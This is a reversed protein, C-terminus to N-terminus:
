SAKMCAKWVKCTDCAKLKDNDKGFDGGHPCENPADEKKSIPTEEEEIKNRNPMKPPPAEEVPEEEESMAGSFLNEVEEYSPITLCSAFCISDEVDKDTVENKRDVFTIGEYGTFEMKGSKVHTAMFKVTKGKETDAALFIVGDEAQTAQAAKFAKGFLHNSVDFVHRKGDMTRVNYIARLSPWCARAEKTMDSEYFKNGAECIPCDLGYMRKRCLIQKNNAGINKHVWYELSYDPSGVELYQSRVLPHNESGIIYPIIDFKNIEGEVPKFFSVDKGVKSWDFISKKASEEEAKARGELSYKSM